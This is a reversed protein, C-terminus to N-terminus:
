TKQDINLLQQWKSNKNLCNRENKNNKAIDEIKIFSKKAIQAKIKQKLDNKTQNNQNLILWHINNSNCDNIIMSLDDQSKRNIRKYLDRIEKASQNM